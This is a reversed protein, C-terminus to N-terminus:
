AREYKRFKIFRFESIKIGEKESSIRETTSAICELGQKLALEVFAFTFNHEGMIHIANKKDVSGSIINKCKDVCDKAMVAVEESTMRPEIQPFQLDVVTKYFENAIDKQLQGWNNYSHNTLNILM